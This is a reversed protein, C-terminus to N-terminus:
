LDRLYGRFLKTIRHKSEVQICSIKFTQETINWGCLLYKADSKSKYTKVAKELVNLTHEFQNEKNRQQFVMIKYEADSQLLKNFDNKISGIKKGMEIEMALIINKLNNSEDFERWILDYLWEGKDNGDKIHNKYRSEYKLNEGEKGFKKMIDKNKEKSEWIEEKWASENGKTRAISKKEEIAKDEIERFWQKFKEIM